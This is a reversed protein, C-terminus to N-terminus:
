RELCDSLDVVLSQFHEPGSGRLANISEAFSVEASGTALAAIFAMAALLLLGAFLAGNRAANM